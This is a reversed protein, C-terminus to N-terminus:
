LWYSCSGKSVWGGYSRARWTATCLSKVGDPTSSFGGSEYEDVYDDNTDSDSDHKAVACITSTPVAFLGYDSQIEARTFDGGWTEIDAGMKWYVYYNKRFARFRMKASGSYFWLESPNKSAVIAQDKGVEVLTFNGGGLTSQSIIRDLEGPRPSLDISLIGGGRGSPEALEAARLDYQRGDLIMWGHEDTILDLVPDGFTFVPQGEKNLRQYKGQRKISVKFGSEQRMLPFIQELYTVLDEQDKFRNRGMQLHADTKPFRIELKNDAILKLNANSETPLKLDTKM